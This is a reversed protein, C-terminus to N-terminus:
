SPEQGPYRVIGTTDVQALLQRVKKCLVPHKFDPALDALPVLVFGREHLRPHPIMIGPMDLIRDNYFLIDLDIIRPGNRIGPQRGLQKELQKLYALLEWPDLETELELVQNLFAPQDEFGWPPTEYVPSAKLLRVQPSLAARASNLNGLRDGLNSGLALFIPRVM